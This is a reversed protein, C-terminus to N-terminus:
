RSSSTGRGGIVDLLVSLIREGAKGDWVEPYKAPLRAPGELAKMAESVIREPDNGVLVNTGMEVTEPRETNERLTLCPIGLVTSEEQIGGSDTLILRAGMELCIFDLYGLPEIMILNEMARTRRELHFEKLRKATRPHVPFVIPILRQIQEIADLIRSLARPDDVNHPRHLTMLAYNKGELGLKRRIPRRKAREIHKLLMDIMTDGVLFISEPPRGEKLLNQRGFETPPFLIDSIADTVVRNIEEPMTRDFSRIGAEVHAVPIHLKVATLACAVTSNVDGVVVVVDPKTELLVPEFALMVKATQEAHTGSGVGLYFDPEPLGLDEFFVKSMEYDYHQGTHVLITEIEAGEDRAKEAAELVSAVKMFNPRAGGVLLARM